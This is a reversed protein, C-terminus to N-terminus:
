KNILKKIYDIGFRDEINKKRLNESVGEKSPVYNSFGPMNLPCSVTPYDLKSYQDKGEIQITILQTSKKDGCGCAGCYFSNEFKDSNKRESCPSINFEESGHCSIIRLNKIEEPARNNTIGRSAVSKAFSKAKEFINTKSIFKEDSSKNTEKQKQLFLEYQKKANEFMKKKYDENIPSINQNDM